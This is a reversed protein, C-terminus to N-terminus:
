GGNNNKNKWLDSYYCKKYIEYANLLQKAEKILYDSYNNTYYITSRAHHHIVKLKPTYLTRYNLRNCKLALFLEEFYLGTDPEFMLQEQDIYKRLAVICSGQLVANEIEKRYINKVSSEGYKHIRYLDTVRDPIIFHMIDTFFSKMAGKPQVGHNIINQYRPKYDNEFYEISPIKEYLPGQHEQSSPKYIDPGILYYQNRNNINLVKRIFDEQYIEIDNNLVAIFNPNYEKAYSYLLNNGRTFGLNSDSNYVVINNNKGFKHEIVDKANINPDNNLVIIMCEDIENLKLLSVLCRFTPKIDGYHLVTFVGKKM